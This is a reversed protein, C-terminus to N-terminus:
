TRGLAWELDHAGRVILLTVVAMGGFLFLFFELREIEAMRSQRDLLARNEPTPNNYWAHWARDTPQRRYTGCQGAIIALLLEVSLVIAVWKRM